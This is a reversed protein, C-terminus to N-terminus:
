ASAGEKEIDDEAGRFEPRAVNLDEFIRDASARADAAAETEGAVERLDAYVVLTLARELAPLESDRVIELARDVFVFAEAEGRSHAIRALLRYVPPLRRLHLGRLAEAEAERVVSAADLTNGQLLLAEGLNTRIVVRIEGSLDGQIAAIARRFRLEASRVAGRALDLQGRGNEIEVAAAPDDLGAAEAEARAYWREADDLTGRERHTIGLNQFVRWRLARGDAAPVRQPDGADLIGLAREYWAEAERWRGQDVAVNGRGTAAVVADVWRAADQARVFAEEYSRASTALDGVSRACRASRRLAEATRPHGTDLAVRFAADAWRGAERSRGEGELAESEDLLSSVVTDPDSRELADSLVGIQRLRRELRGQEADIWARARVEFARVDVLRSGATGLEGSAAWRRERDARSTAFLEEVFPRLEPADPLVALLRELRLPDRGSTPPPPKM